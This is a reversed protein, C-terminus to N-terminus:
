TALARLPCLVKQVLEQMNCALLPVTHVQLTQAILSSVPWSRDPKEDQRGLGRVNEKRGLHSKSEAISM